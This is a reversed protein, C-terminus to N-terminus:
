EQAAAGVGEDAEENLVAEPSGDTEGDVAADEDARATRSATALEEIVSRHEAQVREVARELVKLSAPLYPGALKRLAKAAVDKHSGWSTRYTRQSAPLVMRAAHQEAAVVVLGREYLSGATWAGDVYRWLWELAGDPESIATTSGCGAV